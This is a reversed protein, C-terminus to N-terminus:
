MLCKPPMPKGPPKRRHIRSVFGHASPHAADPKPHATDARVDGATNATDLLAPRQAGDRCAGDTAIGTRILGHRRDTGVHTKDGLAPM